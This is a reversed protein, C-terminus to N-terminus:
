SESGPSSGWMDRFADDVQFASVKLLNMLVENTATVGAEKTSNAFKEFVRQDQRLSKHRFLVRSAPDLASLCDAEGV